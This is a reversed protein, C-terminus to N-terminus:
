IKDLVILLRTSFIAPFFDFIKDAKKMFSYWKEPYLQKGRYGGSLVYSIVAKREIKHIRWKDNYLNFHTNKVFLRFANGQAAYYKPVYTSTFNNWKIKKGFGIPEHHFLGFILFGLVSMSPEFLIIRGNKNLTRYMENFADGPFEIHHFVDFLIFNSVSKDKFSLNYVSEVSDIGENPFLDTTICEPIVTKIAGIGSGLEVIYGPISRNINSNINSYFDNYIKRLISKSNWFKLNEHIEINHQGSSFEM